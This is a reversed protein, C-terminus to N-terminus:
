VGNTAVPPPNGHRVAAQPGCSRVSGRLRGSAPMQELPCMPPPHRQARTCTLESLTLKRARRRPDSLVGSESFSNSLLTSVYLPCRQGRSINWNMTCSMPTGRSLNDCTASALWTMDSFMVDFRCGFNSYKTPSSCIGRLVSPRTIPENGCSSVRFRSDFRMGLSRNKVSSSPTGSTSNPL